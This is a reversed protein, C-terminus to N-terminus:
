FIKRIINSNSNTGVGNTCNSNYTYSNKKINLLRIKKLKDGIDVCNYRLAGITDDLQQCAPLRHAWDILRIGVYSILIPWENSYQSIYIVIATRTSDVVANFIYLKVYNL